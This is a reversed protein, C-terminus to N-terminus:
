FIRGSKRLEALLIAAAGRYSVCVQEAMPLSSWVALEAVLHDNNGNVPASSLQGDKDMMIAVTGNAGFGIAAVRQIRTDGDVRIDFLVSGGTKEAADGVSRFLASGSTQM